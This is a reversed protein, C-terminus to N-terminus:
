AALAMENDNAGICVARYRHAKGLLLLTKVREDIRTRGWLQAASAAWTTSAGPVAGPDSGNIVRANIAMAPSGARSIYPARTFFLLTEFM